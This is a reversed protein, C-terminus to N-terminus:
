IYRGRDITRNKNRNLNSRGQVEKEAEMEVMRSLVEYEDKSIRVIIVNQM